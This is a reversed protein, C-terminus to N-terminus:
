NKVQDSQKFISEKLEKVKTDIFVKGKEAAVFKSFEPGLRSLVDSGCGGM